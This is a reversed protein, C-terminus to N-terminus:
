GKHRLFGFRPERVQDEPHRQFPRDFLLALAYFFVAAGVIALAVLSGRTWGTTKLAFVFGLWALGGGALALFIGVFLVQYWPAWM